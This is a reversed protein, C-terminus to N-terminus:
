TSCLATNAASGDRAGEAFHQLATREDTRLSAEVGAVEHYVATDPAQAEVAMLAQSMSAASEAMYFAEVLKKLAARDAVSVPKIADAASM